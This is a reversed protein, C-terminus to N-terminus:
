TKIKNQSAELRKIYEGRLINNIEIKMSKLFSEYSISNFLMSKGPNHNADFPDEISFAYYDKEEKYTNEIENSVSIKMRNSDFYYSFFEFFKVLLSSVTETNSINNNIKLLHEKAKNLDEEFYINVKMLKGMHKYEYIHEKYNIRQLNPLVKSEPINQMFYILMLILAYSSLYFNSTGQVQNLKSWYKLYIGIIHFRQDLLSYLKILRTNLLPLISHVTIDIKFKTEKDVIKLLLYRSNSILAESESIGNKILYNNIKEFIPEFGKLYDECNPIICIDIDGEDLLFNNNFSGYPEINIPINTEKSILNNLINRYKTFAYIYLYKNKQTNFIIKQYLPILIKDEFLSLNNKIIEPNIIQFYKLKIYEEYDQDGKELKIFNALYNNLPICLHFIKASNESKGDYKNYFQCNKVSDIILNNQDTSNIKNGKKAEFYNTKPNLFKVENNQMKITKKIIELHNDFHLSDEIILNDIWKNKSNVYNELNQYIINKTKINEKSLRIVTINKSLIKKKFYRSINILGNSETKTSDLNPKIKDHNVTNTLKLFRQKRIIKCQYLFKIIDQIILYIIKKESLSLYKFHRKLYLCLLKKYDQSHTLILLIKTKNFPIFFSKLNEIRKLVKYISNKNNCYLLHCYFLELQKSIRKKFNKSLFIFSESLIFLMRNIFKIEKRLLKKKKKVKEVFKLIIFYINLSKKLLSKFDIKQSGIMYKSSIQSLSIMDEDIIDKFISVM